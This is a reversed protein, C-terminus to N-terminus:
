RTYKTYTKANEERGCFIKEVMTKQMIEERPESKRNVEKRKRLKFYVRLISFPKNNGKTETEILM